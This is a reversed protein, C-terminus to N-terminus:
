LSSNHVHSTHSCHTASDRLPAHNTAPHHVASHLVHQVETVSCTSSCSTLRAQHLSLPFLSSLPLTLVAAVLLPFMCVADGDNCRIVALHQGFCPSFVNLVGPRLLGVALKVACLQVLKDLGESLTEVFLFMCCILINYVGFFRFATM